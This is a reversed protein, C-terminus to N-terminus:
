LPHRFFNPHTQDGFQFAVANTIPFEHKCRLSNCLDPLWTAATIAECSRAAVGGIVSLWPLGCVETVAALANSSSVSRQASAMWLM